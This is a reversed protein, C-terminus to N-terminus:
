ILAFLSFIPLEDKPIFYPIGHIEESLRILGEIYSDDYICTVQPVNPGTPHVSVNGTIILGVGGKTLEKYFEILSDTVYGKLDARKEYTASRVLRNKIKLGSISYPEFLMNIM